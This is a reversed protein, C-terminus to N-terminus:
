QATAAATLHTGLASLIGEGAILVEEEGAGAGGRWGKWLLQRPNAEQCLFTPPVAVVVTGLQTSAPSAGHPAVVRNWGLAEILLVM